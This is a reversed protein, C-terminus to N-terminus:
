REGRLELMRAYLRKGDGAVYLAELEDWAPVLPAWEPYVAMEGIRSRWEPFEALLRWCRGFDSSDPPISDGDTAVGLMHRMLEKSSSGTDGYFIWELARRNICHHNTNNM